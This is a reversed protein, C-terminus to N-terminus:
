LLLVMKCHRSLILYGCLLPHMSIWCEEREILVMAAASVIPKTMSALRFITNDSVRNDAERNAFGAHREFAIEGDKVAIVSTGVIHGTEIAQDIIKNILM